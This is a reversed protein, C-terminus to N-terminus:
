TDIHDCRLMIKYKLIIACTSFIVFGCLMRNKCKLKFHFNYGKILVSVCFMGCIKSLELLYSVTFHFRLIMINLGLLM